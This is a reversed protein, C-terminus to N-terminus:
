NPNGSAHQSLAASAVALNAAAALRTTHPTPTNRCKSDISYSKMLLVPNESSLLVRAHTHMQGSLSSQTCRAQYAPGAYGLM